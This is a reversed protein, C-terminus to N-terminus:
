KWDAVYYTYKYGAITNLLHYPITKLKLTLSWDLDKRNRESFTLTLQNKLRLNWLM